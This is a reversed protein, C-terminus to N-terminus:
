RFRTARSEEDESNAEALRALRTGLSSGGFMQFFGWYLLIVLVADGVALPWPWRPAERTVSLFVLAFLLMGAVVALTNITWALGRGSLPQSFWDLETPNLTDMEDADVPQLAPTVATTRLPIVTVPTSSVLLGDDKEAEALAAGTETSETRALAPAAFMSESDNSHLAGGELLNGLIWENIQRATRDPLDLFRIGCQGSFTAWMVEGRTEVRLRPYRLEFRVRLQQQPRLAAVVQVGIGDHTLNRVIGGNAQDLTVYTLSRLEHRHQARMQKAPSTGADM